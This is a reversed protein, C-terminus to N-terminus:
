KRKTCCMGQGVAAGLNSWKNGMKGFKLETLQGVTDTYLHLYKLTPMKFKNLNVTNIVYLDTASGSRSTVPVM